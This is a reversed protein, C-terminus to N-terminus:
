LASRSIIGRGPFWDFNERRFRKNWIEDRRMLLAGPIYDGARALGDESRRMLRGDVIGHGGRTAQAPLLDAPPGKLRNEETGYRREEEEKVNKKKAAPWRLPGDPFAAFPLWALSPFANNHKDSRKGGEAGVRLLSFKVRKRRRPSAEVDRTNSEGERHKINIQAREVTYFLESSQEV